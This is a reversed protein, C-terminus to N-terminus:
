LPCSHRAAAFAKDLWPGAGWGYAPHDSLGRFGFFTPGSLAMATGQGMWSPVSDVLDNLDKSLWLWTGLFSCFLPLVLWQRGLLIQLWAFTSALAPQCFTPLFIGHSSLSPSLALSCCPWDRPWVPGKLLFCFAPLLFVFTCLCCPLSAM